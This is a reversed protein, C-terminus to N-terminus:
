LEKESSKCQNTSTSWKNLYGQDIACDLLVCEFCLFNFKLCGTIMHLLQLFSSVFQADSIWFTFRKMHFFHQFQKKVKAMPIEVFM